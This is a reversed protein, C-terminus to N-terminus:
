RHVSTSRNRCTRIILAAAAGAVAGYLHAEIVVPAGIFQSVGALGGGQQELILKLVLAALLLRALAPARELSAIAGAALLGHLVGSFGAYWEIGPSHWLLGADVAATCALMLMTWQGATYAPGLLFWVMTAGALNMGLHPWGTHVLHASLLRWPEAQMLGRELRWAPLGGAAQLLLAAGAVALLPVLYGPVQRRTHV